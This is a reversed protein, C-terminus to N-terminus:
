EVYLPKNAIAIYIQLSVRLFLITAIALHVYLVYTKGCMGVDLCSPTLVNDCAFSVFM